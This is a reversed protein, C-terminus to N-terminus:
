RESLITPELLASVPVLDVDAAPWKQLVGRLMELTARDSRAVAIAMGDERAVSLLADIQRNVRYPEDFPELALIAVRLRPPAVDTEPERDGTTVDGVYFLGRRQLEAADGGASAVAGVVGVAYPVSELAAALDHQGSPAASRDEPLHLLVDRKFLRGLEAVEKSFPRFPQVALAVPADLTVSERAIRLDDGLSDIVLAVQPRSPREQWRFRVTHTLLGDLGVQVETGNFTAESTITMGPDVARIAEIAIEAEQQRARPITVDYSRHIWQLSGSGRRQAVASSLPLSGSELTATVAEIREQLREEWKQGDLPPPVDRIPRRIEEASLFVMAAFVAMLPWTVIWALGLPRRMVRKAM